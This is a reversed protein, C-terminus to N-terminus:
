ALLSEKAATQNLGGDPGRRTGRPQPRSRQVRIRRDAGPVRRAARRYDTRAGPAVKPGWFLLDDFGALMEAVRARRDEDDTWGSEKAEFYRSALAKARQAHDLGAWSVLWGGDEACGPYLHFRESPVDLKGRMRYVTDTQYDSKRYKPPREIEGVLENKLEEAREESIPAEDAARVLRPYAEFDVAHPAVADGLSDCFASKDRLRDWGNGVKSV